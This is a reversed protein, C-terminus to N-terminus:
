SNKLGYVLIRDAEINGTGFAGVALTIGSIARATKDASAGFYRGFTTGNDWSTMQTIITTQDTSLPRHITMELNGQATSGTSSHVYGADMSTANTNDAWVTLTTGSNNVTSFAYGTVASGSVNMKYSLRTNSMSSGSMGIGYIKYVDYDATFFGDISFTNAPSPTTSSLLVYDSPLDTLSAGSIAPLTGSLASADFNGSTLINNAFARTIAGM